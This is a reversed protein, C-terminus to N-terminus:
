SVRKYDDIKGDVVLVKTVGKAGMDRYSVTYWGDGASQVDTVKSPGDGDQNETRFEWVAYGGDDYENAAALKKLCKQTCYKKPSSTGFVCKKYFQKLMEIDAAETNSEEEVTAEAVATTDVQPQAVAVTATDVTSDTENENNQSQNSCAAMGLGLLAIVLYKAKM